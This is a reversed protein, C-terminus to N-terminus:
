VFLNGTTKTASDFFTFWYRNRWNWTMPRAVNCSQDKVKYPVLVGAALFSGMGNRFGIIRLLPLAVRGITTWAPRLFLLPFGTGITGVYVTPSTFLFFFLFELFGFLFECFDFCLRGAVRDGISLVVARTVVDVAASRLRFRRASRVSGSASARPRLIDLRNSCYGFICRMYGAGSCAWPVAQM